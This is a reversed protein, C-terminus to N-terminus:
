TDKSIKLGSSNGRLLWGAALSVGLVAPIPPAGILFVATVLAIAATAGVLTVHRHRALPIVTSKNM